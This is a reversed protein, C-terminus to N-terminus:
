MEHQQDDRKSLVHQLRRREAPDQSDLGEQILRDNREQVTPLNLESLPLRGQGRNHEFSTLASACKKDLHRLDARTFDGDLWPSYVRKIFDVVNESKDPRDAYLTPAVPPGGRRKLYSNSASPEELEVGSLARMYDVVLSRKDESLAEFEEFFGENSVLFNYLDESIEVFKQHAADISGSPGIRAHVPEQATQQVKEHIRQEFSGYSTGSSKKRGAARRTYGKGGSTAM